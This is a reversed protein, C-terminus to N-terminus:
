SFFLKSYLYLMYIVQNQKKSEELKNELNVCMKKNSPEMVSILSEKEKLKANSTYLESETMM